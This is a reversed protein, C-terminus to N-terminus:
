DMLRFILWENAIIKCCFERSDLVLTLGTFLVEFGRSTAEVWSSIIAVYGVAM